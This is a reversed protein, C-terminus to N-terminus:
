ESILLFFLYCMTKIYKNRRVKTGPKFATLFKYCIYLKAASMHTTYQAPRSGKPVYRRWPSLLTAMVVKIKQRISIIKKEPQIQQESTTAAAAAERESESERKEFM